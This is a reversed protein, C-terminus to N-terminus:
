IRCSVGRTWSVHIYQYAVFDPPTETPLEVIIKVTEDDAVPRLELKVM